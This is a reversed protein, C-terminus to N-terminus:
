TAPTTILITLSTCTGLSCITNVKIYYSTSPLLPGISDIPNASASVTPNVLWTSTGTTPIYSTQYSTAGVVPLWKIGAATASIYTTQLGLVSQCPTTPLACGPNTILLALLQVISDLRQGQVIGVDVITNGTYV